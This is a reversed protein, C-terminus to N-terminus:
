NDANLELNLITENLTLDHITFKTNSFTRNREAM